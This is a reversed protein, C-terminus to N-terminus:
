AGGAPRAGAVLEAKLVEYPVAGEGILEGDVM